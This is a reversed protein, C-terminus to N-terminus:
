KISNNYYKSSYAHSIRQFKETCDPDDKNKDPHLKKCKYFFSFIIINIYSVMALKRFAKKVEEQTATKTIGLEEYLNFNFSM